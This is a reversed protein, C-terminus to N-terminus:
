ELRGINPLFALYVLLVGDLCVESWLTGSVAPRPVASDTFMCGGLDSEVFKPVFYSLVVGLVLFLM